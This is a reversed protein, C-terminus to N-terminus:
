TPLVKECYLCMGEQLKADLLKIFEMVWVLNDAQGILLGHEELMHTFLVPLSTHIQKCFLCKISAPSTRDTHQLAVMQELKMQKCKRRLEDDDKWITHNSGNSLLNSPSNSAPNTGSEEEFGIARAEIYLELFPALTSSAAIRVSHLKELHDLATPITSLSVPSPCIPCLFVSGNTWFSNM